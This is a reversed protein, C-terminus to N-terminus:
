EWEISVPKKLGLGAAAEICKVIGCPVPCATHKLNRSAWCYVASETFPTGVEEYCSINEIVPEKCVMPCDSELKVTMTMMDESPTATIRTTMGCIGAKVIATESM